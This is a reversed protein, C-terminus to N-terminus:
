LFQSFKPPDMQKLQQQGLTGDWLRSIVLSITPDVQKAQHWDKLTVCAVQQSDQVADLIHLNCIYAELSKYPRQPCGRACSM